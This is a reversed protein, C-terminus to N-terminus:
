ILFDSTPIVVFVQATSAADIAFCEHSHFESIRQKILDQLADELGAREAGAKIEELEHVSGLSSEDVVSHSDLDLRGVKHDGIERVVVETGVPFSAIGLAESLRDYEGTLLRLELLGLRVEVRVVMQRNKPIRCRWATARLFEDRRDSGCERVQCVHAVTGDLGEM